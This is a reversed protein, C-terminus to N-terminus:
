EWVIAINDFIVEKSYVLIKLIRFIPFDTKETKFVFNGKIPINSKIKEARM